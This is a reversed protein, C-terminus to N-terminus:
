PLYPIPDIGGRHSWQGEHIEFHLHPGTSQGTSGMTAIQQGQNVNSGLSVGMTHLHAYVTSKNLEPHYIYIVNGYSPSYNARTVVGSASAYIPTGTPNSLDIGYHFSEENSIPHIRPGYYSRETLLSGESPWIFTGDGGGNSPPSSPGANSDGSGNQNEEDALQEAQRQEEEEIMQAIIREQDQLTQKEEEMSMTLEELEEHEDELVVMLDSQEDRQENLQAHLNSLEQEQAVLTARQNELEQQDDDLKQKDAVLQEKKGEVSARKDELEIRDKEQADLISRDSEMIRTVASIRNVFDGFSQSGFLVELYNINGGNHQMSRLREKILEDREEIRDMLYDIDDNLEEIENETEDIEEETESISLEIRSIEETTLNIENEKEELSDETIELDEDIDEIKSEVERQREENEAIKEEADSADENISEREEELANLEAELEDISQAHTSNSFAFFSAFVILVILIYKNKNIM